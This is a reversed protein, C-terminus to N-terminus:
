RLVAEIFAHRLSEDRLQEEDIMPIDQLAERLVRAFEGWGDHRIVDGAADKVALGGLGCSPSRAKLICGRLRNSSQAIARAYAGLAESVDVSPDSIEVVRVTGARSVLHLPPRPTPLGIASEPCLPLWEFLPDFQEQIFVDRKDRGDYRVPYGLLCASIAVQPKQPM